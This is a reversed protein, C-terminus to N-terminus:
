GADGQSGGLPLEFSHQVERWDGGKDDRYRERLEGRGDRWVALVAQSRTGFLGQGTEIPFIGSAAAEFEDGLGTQPLKAPDRELLRDDSLLAFLQEWPISTRGGGGGGGSSSDKGGRAGGRDGSQQDSGNSCAGGGTTGAADGGGSSDQNRGSSSSSSAAGFAGQDLLRQLQRWGEDMKPWHADRLGNTIAHLGPPLPEPRGSGRNCLYAMRQQVLDAVVLNFGAYAEGGHLSHLYRKPEAGGRVFGVPLEGRSPTGLRFSDMTGLAHNPEGKGAAGAGAACPPDRLERFNTLFAARGSQTGVCMWTGGAVLDRGGLIRQDNEWFHSPATPRDLQEDRNFLACLLLDPTQPHQWAFYAICM